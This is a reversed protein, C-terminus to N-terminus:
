FTKALSNLAETFRRTAPTEVNRMQTVLLTLDSQPLSFGFQTVGLAIYENRSATVHCIAEVFKIAIAQKTKKDGARRMRLSAVDSVAVIAAIVRDLQTAFEEPDPISGHPDDLIKEPNVLEDCIRSFAMFETANGQGVLGSAVEFLVNTRRAVNYQHALLTWSRPTAFAGLADADKPLQSFTTGQKYQLFAPIVSPLREENQGVEFNAYWKRWEELDPDIELLCVSNRFHAPLTAAASKDERRNGTVMIAVRPSLIHDHIRRELSLQRAAVQLAQAAAPLDDVVLIGFADPECVDRLWSHPVYRTVPGDTKPLGNLDEPLMSSLDLFIRLAKAGGEEGHEERKRNEYAEMRDAIAHATSSKGVGPPGLLTVTQLKGGSKWMEFVYEVLQPIRMGM